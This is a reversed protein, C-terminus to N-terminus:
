ATANKIGIIENIERLFEDSTLREEPPCLIRQFLNRIREDEIHSFYEPNIYGNAMEEFFDSPYDKPHCIFKRLSIMTFFMVGLSWMDNEKRNKVWHYNDMDTKKKCGNGTEPACFPKTGGTGESEDHEGSMGYDILYLCLDESNDSDLDNVDDDSGDDSSSSDDSSDSESEMQLRSGCVLTNGPKIDGHVINCAHLYVLAKAMQACLILVTNIMNNTNNTNNTNDRNPNYTPYLGRFWADITQSNMVIPQISYSIHHFITREPIPIKGLNNLQACVPLAVHNEPDICNAVDYQEYKMLQKLVFYESQIQSNDFAYEVRVMFHNIRFMGIITRMRRYLYTMSVHDHINIDSTDIMLHQRRRIKEVIRQIDNKSLEYFRMCRKNCESFFCLQQIMAILQGIDNKPSSNWKEIIANERPNYKFACNALTLPNANLQSFVDNILTLLKIKKVKEIREVNKKKIKNKGPNGTNGTNGANGTTEMINCKHDVTNVTTSEPTPEISTYTDAIDDIHIIKINAEMADDDDDNMRYVSASKIAINAIKTIINKISKIYKFM